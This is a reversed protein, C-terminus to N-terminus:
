TLGQVWEVVGNGQVWEVVGLVLSSPGWAGNKKDEDHGLLSNVLWDVWKLAAHEEIAGAGMSTALPGHAGLNKVYRTM